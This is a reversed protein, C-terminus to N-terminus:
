KEPTSIECKHPQPPLHSSQDAYINQYTTLKLTVHININIFIYMKGNLFFYNSM